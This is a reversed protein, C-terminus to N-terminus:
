SAPARHEGCGCRRAPLAAAPFIKTVTGLALFAFAAAPCERVLLLLAVAMLLVPWLDFRNVFASGVAFPAVAIALLPWLAYRAPIRLAAAAAALAGAGAVAM